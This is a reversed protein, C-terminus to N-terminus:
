RNLREKPVAYCVLEWCEDSYRRLFLNYGDSFSKILAPIKWLHEQCHYVCIALVPLNHSITKRGGLLAEIEAGEIDMKIFTPQDQMLLDDLPICEVQFEGSGVSSAASGTVNFLVKERKFGVANQKIEIKTQMQSPFGSVFKGLLQCNIPDPEIAIIKKFSQQQRQMYAQITDGTFAGCDVFVESDLYKYIDSPFYTEQPPLHPPMVSSDLSLRWDLQALYEICSEEDTWLKLVSRVQDAEEFIKYPLELGGHPLFFDPFKWGLAPFSIVKVGMNQLQKHVPASTYITVVFVARSGFNGVAQHPSLVRLGDVETDWLQPNNDVFALPLIGNRRLTALVSQGLRGAGFLVFNNGYPLIIQDIISRQRNIVSDVQNSLIQNLTDHYSKRDM